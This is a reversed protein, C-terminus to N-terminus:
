STPVPVKFRKLITTMFVDHPKLRDEPKMWSLDLVSHISKRLYDAERSRPSLQQLTDLYHGLRLMKQQFVAQYAEPFKVDEIRKVKTLTRVTNQLFLTRERPTATDVITERLLGEDDTTFIMKGWPRLIEETSVIEGVERLSEEQVSSATTSAEEAAAVGGVGEVFDVGEIMDGSTKVVDATHHTAVDTVGEVSEVFDVGEILDQVSETAAQQADLAKMLWEPRAKGAADFAEALDQNTGVHLADAADVIQFHAPVDATEAVYVLQDGAHVLGLESIHVTQGSELKFVSNVNSWAQAFQEQTIKGEKVLEKGATWLSDGQELTNEIVGVASGTIEEPASAVVDVSENFVGVGITSNDSVVDDFSVGEPIFRETEVFAALKEPNSAVDLIENPVEVNSDIVLESAPTGASAAEQTDGFFSFIKGLLATGVGWAAAKTKTKREDVQEQRLAGFRSHDLYTAIEEKTKGEKEMADVLQVQLMKYAPDRIIRIGGYRAQAELSLMVDRTKEIDVVGTKANESVLEEAWQRGRNEHVSRMTDYMGFGVAAGGLARRAMVAGAGLGTVAGVGLLGLSIATRASVMRLGFRGLKNETTILKNANQEGLWRMSKRVVSFVGKQHQEATAEVLKIRESIHRRAKDAIYQAKINEYVERAEIYARVDKNRRNRFEKLGYRAVDLALGKIGSPMEKGERKYSDFFDQAYQGVAKAGRFIKEKITKADELPQEKKDRFYKEAFDFEDGSLKNEFLALQARSENMRGIFEKAAAYREKGIGGSPLEPAPELDVDADATDIRATMVAESNEPTQESKDSGDSAKSEKQTRPKREKKGKEKSADLRKMVAALQKEADETTVPNGQQDFVKEGRQIKEYREQAFAHLKSLFGRDFERSRSGSSTVHFIEAVLKEQERRLESRRAVLRNYHPGVAGPLKKIEENIAIIERGIDGLPSEPRQKMPVEEASSQVEVKSSVDPAVIEGSDEQPETDQEVAPVEGRSGTRAVLQELASRMRKKIDGMERVRKNIPKREEILQQLEINLRDFETDGAGFGADKRMKIGDRIRKIERNLRKQELIDREYESVSEVTNEQDDGQVDEKAGGTLHTRRVVSSTQHRKPKEPNKLAAELKEALPNITVSEAVQQADKIEEPTAKDPSPPPPTEFSMGGHDGSNLIKDFGRQLM